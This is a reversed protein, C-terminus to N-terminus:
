SFELFSILHMEFMEKTWAGVSSLSASNSASYFHNIPTKSVSLSWTILSPDLDLDLTVKVTQWIHAWLYVHCASAPIQSLHAPPHHLEPSPSSTVSSSIPTNPHCHLNTWISIHQNPNIVGSGCALATMCVATILCMVKWISDHNQVRGMNEFDELETKPRWEWM